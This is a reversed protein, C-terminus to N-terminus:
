PKDDKRHPKHIRLLGDLERRSVMHRGRVVIPRLVGRRLLMSMVWEPMDAEKAAALPTLHPTTTTATM